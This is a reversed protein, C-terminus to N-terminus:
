FLKNKTLFRAEINGNSLTKYVYLGDVNVDFNHIKANQLITQNLAIQASSKTNSVASIQGYFMDNKNPPKTGLSYEYGDKEWDKWKKQPDQNEEKIIQKILNTLESETLRIIKKM